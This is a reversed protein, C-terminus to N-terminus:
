IGVWTSGLRNKQASPPDAVATMVGICSRDLQPGADAIVEDFRTAFTQYLYFIIYIYDNIINYYIYITCMM